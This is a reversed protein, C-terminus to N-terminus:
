PARGVACDTIAEPNRRNIRHFIMEHEFTEEVLAPFAPRVDIKVKGTAVPAFRHDLFNITTVTFVACGHSRVHDGVATATGRALNAFREVKGRADDVPKRMQKGAAIERVGELELRLDLLSTQWLRM